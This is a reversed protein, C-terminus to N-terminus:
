ACGSMYVGQRESASVGGVTVTGSLEAPQTGAWRTRSAPGIIRVPHSVTGEWPSVLTVQYDGGLDDAAKSHIQCFGTSNARELEIRELGTESGGNPHTPDGPRVEAGDSDLFVYDWGESRLDTAEIKYVIKEDGVDCELDVDPAIFLAVSALVSGDGDIAHVSVDGVTQPAHGVTQDHAGITGDPWALGAVGAGTAECHVTQGYEVLEQDCTIQPAPGSALVTRAGVMTAVLLLAGVGAMIAVRFVARNLQTVEEM